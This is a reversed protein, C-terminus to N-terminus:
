LCLVLFSVKTKKYTVAEEVFAEEYCLLQGCILAGSIIWQMTCIRCTNILKTVGVVVFFM